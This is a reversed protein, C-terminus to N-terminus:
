SLDLEASPYREFTCLFKIYAFCCPEFIFKLDKTCTHKTTHNMAALLYINLFCTIESNINCTLTSHISSGRCKSAKSKWRGCIFVMM